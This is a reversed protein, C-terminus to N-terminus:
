RIQPLCNNKTNKQLRKKKFRQLTAQSKIKLEQSKYNLNGEKGM